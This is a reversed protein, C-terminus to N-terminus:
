PQGPFGRLAFSGTREQEVSSPPTTAGTGSGLKLTTPKKVKFLNGPQESMDSPTSPVESPLQLKM